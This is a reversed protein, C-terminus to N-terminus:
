KRGGYYINIRSVYIGDFDGGRKSYKNGNNIRGLGLRRIMVQTNQLRYALLYSFHESLAKLTELPVQLIGADDALKGIAANQWRVRIGNIDGDYVGPSLCYPYSM